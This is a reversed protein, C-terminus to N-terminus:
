SVGTVVRVESGGTNGRKEALLERDRQRQQRGSDSRQEGASEQAHATRPRARM